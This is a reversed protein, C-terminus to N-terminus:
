EIYCEAIYIMLIQRIQANKFSWATIQTLDFEDMTVSLNYNKLLKYQQAVM